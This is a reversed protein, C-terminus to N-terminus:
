NKENQRVIWMLLGWSLLIALGTLAFIGGLIYVIITLAQM